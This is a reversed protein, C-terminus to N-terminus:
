FALITYFRNLEGRLNTCAPDEGPISVSNLTTLSSMDTGPPMMTAMQTMMASNDMTMMAAAAQMQDQTMMTSPTTKIPAAFLAAYQGKDLKTVDVMTSTDSSSSMVATMVGDFGFYHEAIYLNLILDSDCVVLGNPNPQVNTTGASTAVVTPMATPASTVGATAEATAETTAETTAEVTAEVTSEVTAEATTEVTAESTAEVTAEATPTATADQAGVFAASFLAACFLGAALLRAINRM